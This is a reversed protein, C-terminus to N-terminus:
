RKRDMTYNGNPDVIDNFRFRLDLEIDYGGAALDYAEQVEATGTM